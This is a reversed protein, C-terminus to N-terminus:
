AIPRPIVEECARIVGDLTTILREALIDDYNSTDDGLQRAEIVQLYSARDQPGIPVPPYGARILVLNMLLRATRGNGDEFPHISVLRFHAEFATEPSAEAEGLWSGLAQMLEPVTAANPFVVRSGAVRRPLTAYRGAIQPRTRVVISEHIRLIEREGFPAGGAALSRMLGVAAYHDAAELHEALSKGGITVGKEIVMATESYSLTNGEIANSTYTLEVDYYHRLASLAEAAMPGLADLRGKRAVIAAALKSRM